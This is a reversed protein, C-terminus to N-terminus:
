HNNTQGLLPRFGWADRATKDGAVKYVAAMGAFPEVYLRAEPLLAAIRRAPKQKGGMDPLVTRPNAM